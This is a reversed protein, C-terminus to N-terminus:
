VTARAPSKTQATAQSQTETPGRVSPHMQSFATRGCADCQACHKNRNTKLRNQDVLHFHRNVEPWNYVVPPFNVHFYRVIVSV